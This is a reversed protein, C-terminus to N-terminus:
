KDLDGRGWITATMVNPCSFFGVSPLSKPSLSLTLPRAAHRKDHTIVDISSGRVRVREGMKESLDDIVIICGIPASLIPSLPRFVAEHGM